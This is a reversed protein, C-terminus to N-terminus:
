GFVWGAVVGALGLRFAAYIALVVAAGAGIGIAYEVAHSGRDPEDRLHHVRAALTGALLGLMALLRANMM